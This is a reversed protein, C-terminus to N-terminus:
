DTKVVKGSYLNGDIQLHYIYIGNLLWSADMSFSNTASFKKKIILKGQLNYIVLDIDQLPLQSFKLDLTNAFPNTIHFKIDSNNGEIGSPAISFDITYTNQTLGDFSTVVVVGKGSVGEPQTIEVNAGDIQSKAQITPLLTTGFPLEVAYNFVDPQFDPVPTYRYKL